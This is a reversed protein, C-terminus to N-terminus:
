QVQLMGLRLSDYLKPKIGNNILSYLCMFRMVTVIPMGRAMAQEIFDEFEAADV